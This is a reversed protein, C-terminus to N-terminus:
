QLLLYWCGSAIVFMVLSNLLFKVQVRRDWTLFMPADVATRFMLFNLPTGLLLIALALIAGGMGIDIARLLRLLDIGFAVGAAGVGLQMGHAAPSPREKLLLALVVGYTILLPISPGPNGFAAFAAFTGLGALVTAVRAAWLHWPKMRPDPAPKEGITQDAM